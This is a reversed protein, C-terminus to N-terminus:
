TRRLEPHALCEPGDEVTVAPVSLIPAVSVVAAPASTMHPATLPPAARPSRGSPPAALATYYQISTRLIATVPAGLRGSRGGTWM